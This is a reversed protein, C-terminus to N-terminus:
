APVQHAPSSSPQRCSASPEHWTHTRTTRPPTSSVAHVSRAVRRRGSRWRETAARRRGGPGAVWSIDTARCGEPRRARDASASEGGGRAQRLHALEGHDLVERGRAPPASGVLRRLEGGDTAAARRLGTLHGHGAATAGRLGGLRRRDTTAASGLVRDGGGRSRTRGAAVACRTGDVGAEHRDDGRSRARPDPALAGRERSVQVAGSPMSASSSVRGIRSLSWMCDRRGRSPPESLTQAPSRTRVGAAPQRGRGASRRPMGPTRRSRPGDPRRDHRGTVTADVTRAPGRRRTAAAHRTVRPSRHGGQHRCHRPPVRRGAFRKCM